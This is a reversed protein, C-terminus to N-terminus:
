FRTRRRAVFVDVKFYFNLWWSSTSHNLVAFSIAMLTLAVTEADSAISLAEPTKPRM